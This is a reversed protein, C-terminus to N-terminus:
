RKISVESLSLIFEACLDSSSFNANARAILRVRLCHETDQLIEAACYASLSAVAEQVATLPHIRLDVGVEASATPTLHVASDAVRRATGHM